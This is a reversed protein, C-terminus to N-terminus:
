GDELDEMFDGAFIDKIEKWTLKIGKEIFLQTDEDFPFKVSVQEVEQRTSSEVTDKSAAGKSAM